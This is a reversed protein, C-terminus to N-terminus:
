TKGIIFLCSHRRSYLLIHDTVPKFFKPSAVQDVKQGLDHKLFADHVVNINQGLDTKSKALAQWAPLSM